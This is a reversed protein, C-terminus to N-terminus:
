RVTKADPQRQCLPSLEEEQSETSAFVLWGSGGALLILGLLGRVPAWTRELALGALSAFLPAVLFRAAMRSASLRRILWFLLFLGPIDILLMRLFFIPLGSSNATTSPTFAAALAFCFGSVGSAMAAMPLTSGDPVAHALRVAVCNTAAITLATVLLVLLAVAERWASPTELPFLFLIGAIAVLVGALVGKGKRPSCDQLYPELVVAFVPTLCLVAVADLSSIRDRAFAAAGTPIVFFGLGIGVSAWALRRRLFQIRRVLTLSATMVAFVSFLIAQRSPLSFVNQASGPFLDPLLWGVAWLASLLLLGLCPTLGARLKM